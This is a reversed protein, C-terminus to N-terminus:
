MVSEIFRNAMVETNYKNKPIYSCKRSMQYYLRRPMNLAKEVVEYPGHLQGYLLCNVGDELVCFEPMHEDSNDHTIVPINYSLAHLISLGVAGPHIFYKAKLFVKAIADEDYIAGLMVINDTLKKDTIKKRLNEGEEGDGIITWKLNKNKEVLKSFTDLFLDLKNKKLLRCCSVFGGSQYRDYYHIVNRIKAKSIAEYDLGNNLSIVRGKYRCALMKKKECETYVFISSFRKWWFLRVAETIKSAGATHVHGWVITKKGLLFLITSLIVSSVVRPNGTFVYYDFSTLMRYFPLFQFVLKNNGITYHKIYQVSGNLVEEDICNHKSGQLERQCYIKIDIDKSRILRQIFDKRYSPLVNTVLCVKKM